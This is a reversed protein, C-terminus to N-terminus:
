ESIKRFPIFVDHHHSLVVTTIAPLTIWGVIRYHVLISIGVTRTNLYDIPVHDNAIDMPKGNDALPRPIPAFKRPLLSTDVDWLSTDDLAFVVEM